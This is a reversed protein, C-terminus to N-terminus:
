TANTRCAKTMVPIYTRIFHTHMLLWRCYRTETTSSERERRGGGGGGGGRKEEREMKGEWGVSVGDKERGRERGWGRM